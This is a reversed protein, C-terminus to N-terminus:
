FDIVEHVAPVREVSTFWCPGYSYIFLRLGDGDNSDSWCPKKFACYSCNLGLKMNGSKGEAVPKFCRTPAPKAVEEKMQAIRKPVDIMDIEHVPMLALEGSQKSMALFGAEKHGDPHAYGSIQALYGFSDNGEEALTGNKFRKFSGSSASKIDIPVDDIKCDMHGLIGDVEVKAQEHTLTHGSEKILYILLAEIIDGFLFKLRTDPSLPEKETGNIEHWLQCDAKGINSMRLTNHSQRNSPKFQKLLAEAVAEQFDTVASFEPEFGEDVIAYIDEVLTDVTKM